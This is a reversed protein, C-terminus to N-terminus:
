VFDTGGGRCIHVVVYMYKRIEVVYLDQFYGLASSIVLVVVVRCHHHVVTTKLNLLM